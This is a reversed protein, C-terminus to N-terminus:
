VVAPLPPGVPSWVSGVEAGMVLGVEAGMVLGVASSGLTKPPKWAGRGVIGPPMSCVDCCPGM